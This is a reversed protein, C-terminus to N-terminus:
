EVAATRMGAAEPPADAVGVRTGAARARYMALDAMRLMESGKETHEPCSAVGVSIALPKGGPGELRDVASLLRGGLLAAQTATQDPALIGFEDGSLRVTTDVTRVTAEAAQAVAVLADDGAAHGYSDNIGKLGVVDFVVASFPHGYRRHVATLHEIQRWLHRRNYLGTLPDCSALQELERSRAEMLREGAAGSLVAFVSTLRRLADVLSDGYLKELEGHLAATLVSHLEALDLSVEAFSPCSRGRFGVLVAIRECVEADAAFAAAREDEALCAVLETVLEPLEGAVQEMPMREIESLPARDLVALVWAKTLEASSESLRALPADLASPLRRIQRATASM